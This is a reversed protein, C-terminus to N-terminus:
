KEVVYRLSHDNQIDDFETSSIKYESIDEGVGVYGMPHRGGNYYNMAAFRLSPLMGAPDLVAIAIAYKGPKIGSDPTISERIEYEAAPTRYSHVSSDYDDGPLWESVKPTKLVTKWVVNRTSPDILSIEVPWDYYFPSSGTNQVKFSIEATRGLEIRAPYNFEKILFRYGM